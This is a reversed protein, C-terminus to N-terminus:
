LTHLQFNNVVLIRRSSQPATLDLGQECSAKESVSGGECVHVHREFRVQCSEDSCLARDDVCLTEAGDGGDDGGKAFTAVDDDCISADVVAYLLTDLDRAASHAPVVM